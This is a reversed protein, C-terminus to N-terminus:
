VKKPFPERAVLPRMPHSGLVTGEPIPFGRMFDAAALM